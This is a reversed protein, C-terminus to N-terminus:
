QTHKIHSRSDGYAGPGPAANVMSTQPVPSPFSKNAWPRQFGHRNSSAASRAWTSADKAKISRQDTASAHKASELWQQREEAVTRDNAAKWKAQETRPPSRGDERRVTSSGFGGASGRRRANVQTQIKGLKANHEAKIRDMASMKAIAQVAEPSGVDRPQSQSAQSREISARTLRLHGPAPADPDPSAARDAM